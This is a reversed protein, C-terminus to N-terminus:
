EFFVERYTGNGLDELYWGHLGSKGNSVYPLWPKVQSATSTEIDDLRENLWIGLSNHNAQFYITVIEGRNFAWRRTTSLYFSDGHDDEFSVNTGSQSRFKLLMKYKVPYDNGRTNGEVMYSFLDIETYQSRDITQAMLLPGTIFLWFILLIRKM